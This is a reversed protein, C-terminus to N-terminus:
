AGPSLMVDRGRLRKALRSALKHVIGYISLQLNADISTPFISEDHM